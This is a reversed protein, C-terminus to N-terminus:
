RQLPTHRTLLGLLIPQDPRLRPVSPYSYTGCEARTSALSDKNQVYFIKSKSNYISIKKSIKFFTRYIDDM